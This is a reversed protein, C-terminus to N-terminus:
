APLVLDERTDFWVKSELLYALKKIKHCYRIEETRGSSIKVIEM